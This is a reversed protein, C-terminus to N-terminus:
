IVIQHLYPLSRKHPKTLLIPQCIYTKQALM